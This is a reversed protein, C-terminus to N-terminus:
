GLAYFLSEGVHVGQGLVSAMESAMTKVLAFSMNSYQAGWQDTISEDLFWGAEPPFVIMLVMIGMLLALSLLRVHRGNIGSLWVMWPLPEAPLHPLVETQILTQAKVPLGQSLRAVREIVQDPIHMGPFGAEAARLCSHVYMRVENQDLPLIPMPRVRVCEMGQNVLSEIREVLASTGFMVVALCIRQRQVSVLNILAAIAPLPLVDGRDVLLTLQKNKAQMHELLVRLRQESSVQEKPVSLGASLAVHKILNAVTTGSAGTLIAISGSASRRLHGALATKGSGKPGIIVPLVQEMSQMQNLQLILRRISPLLCYRKPSLTSWDVNSHKSDVVCSQLSESLTVASDEGRLAWLRSQATGASAQDVDRFNKVWAFVFGGFDPIEQTYRM